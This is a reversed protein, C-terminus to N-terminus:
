EDSAEVPVYERVRYETDTYTLRRHAADFFASSKGDYVLARNANWGTDGKFLDKVRYEVVWISM